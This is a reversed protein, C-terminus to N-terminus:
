SIWRRMSALRRSRGSARHEAQLALIARPSPVGITGGAFTRMCKVRLCDYSPERAPAPAGDKSAEARGTPTSRGAHAPGSGALAPPSPPPPPPPPPPPTPLPRRAPPVARQDPSRHGQRGQPGRTGLHAPLQRGDGAPRRPRARVPGRVWWRAPAAAAGAPLGA